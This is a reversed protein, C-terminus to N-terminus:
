CLLVVFCASETVLGGLWVKLSGGEVGDTILQLVHSLDQELADCRSSEERLADRERQWEQKERELMERESDLMEREGEAEEVRGKLGVM